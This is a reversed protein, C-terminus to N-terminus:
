PLTAVEGGQITSLAQYVTMNINDSLFQVSGDGFAFNAGGTHFSRFNTGRHPGGESSMKFNHRQSEDHFSDTVYRKNLKEVTSAMSGSYRFGGAYFSSLNSGGVLWGLYSQNEGVSSSLPTDCGIGSCMQKGSAAEGVIFTNSTGDAIDALKPWYNIAAIGSAPTVPRATYQPTYGLGDHYGVSYAYSCTAYRDGSPISFPTIFPYLHISEASDSPCLYGPEVITVATSSQLYWPVNKNILSAANSQELFDLLAIFGTGSADTTGGFRVWTMGAPFRRHTNEYNHTALGIQKLNNSCQMRRAAERAAQVAPLLLGVLVGIIAIVVLLEVLTFASRSPKNCTRM